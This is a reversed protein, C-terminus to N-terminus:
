ETRIAEAPDLRLAKLAPYISSLIGTIVILLAVVFFFSSSITPYIHSSLGMAEFGEAYGSLNIGNTATLRIVMWSFVIGAIGGTLSLFISELMIMRFVRKKNMGIATLMGLEKTRELVVMLMTNVIGFALAALIIVMFVAYFMEVMESMMALDPQLEKWTQVDRDKFEEKIINGTQDTADLTNIKVMVQHSSGPALGTLRLLTEAPIFVQTKEYLNNKIDYLGAIRFVDGTQNNEKDLFSLTIRSRNKFSWAERRIEQGYKKAEGATFLQKMEKMFLKENLFRKGAMPRLKDLVEAPLGKNKLNNIMEDDIIYKIINLEKALDEGIYIPNDDQASDLYCGTGPILKKDLSFVRKEDEANVGNIQVGSNKGAYSIMGNTVVRACVAEADPVERISDQIQETNDLFLLLDNNDRFGKACVQINSVEDSLADDVRQAIMGNMMAVAFIGGFIGILVSIIVVLSRTKNRWVNKWATKWIM